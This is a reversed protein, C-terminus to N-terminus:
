CEARERADLGQPLTGARSVGGGADPLRQAASEAPFVESILRAYVSRPQRM